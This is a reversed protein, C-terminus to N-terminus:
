LWWWLLLLLVLFAVVALIRGLAISSGAVREAAAKGAHHREGAAIAARNESPMGQGYQLRWQEPCYAFSAIESASILDDPRPTGKRRGPSSSEPMVSAM